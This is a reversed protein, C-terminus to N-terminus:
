QESSKKPSIFQALRRGQGCKEILTQLRRLRTEEKKASVVWFTAVRQYYPAQNQFHAWAKAAAKFKKAYEPPLKANEREFSYRKTAAQDRAEFVKLGPATMVGLQILEQARKTNINSWYSKAKRPTFRISYSTANVSNRVGDIWGFCLAQDLAERYTISPKSSGKKHLGVLLEAEQAHNHTLWARFAAASEFYTPKVLKKARKM